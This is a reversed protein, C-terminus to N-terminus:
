APRYLRQAAIYDAVAEPVWGQLSLGAAIRGRVTSSSQPHLPLRLRGASGHRDIRAQRQVLDAEAVRDRAAIGRPLRQAGKIVPLLDVDLERAADRLANAHQTFYSNM